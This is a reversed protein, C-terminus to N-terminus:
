DGEIGLEVNLSDDDTKSLEEDIEISHVVRSKEVGILKAKDMLVQRAVVHNQTIMTENYIREQKRLIDALMAERSQELDERIIDSAAKMMNDIAARSLDWKKRAFEQIEPRYKGDLLMHYIEKVRDTYEVKTPKKSTPKRAM